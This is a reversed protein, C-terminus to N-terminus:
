LSLSRFEPSVSAALDASPFRGQVREVMALGLGSELPNAQSASTMYNPPSTIAHAQSSLPQDGCDSPHANGTAQWAEASLRQVYRCHTRQQLLSLGCRPPTVSM